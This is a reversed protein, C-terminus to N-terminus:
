DPKKRDKSPKARSASGSSSSTGQSACQGGGMGLIREPNGLLSEVLYPANEIQSSADLLRKGDIQGTKKL